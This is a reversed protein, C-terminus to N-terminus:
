ASVRDVRDVLEKIDFSFPRSENVAAYFKAELEAELVNLEEKIQLRHKLQVATRLVLKAKQLALESEDKFAM